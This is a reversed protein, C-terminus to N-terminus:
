GSSLYQRAIEKAYEALIAKLETPYLVEVDTGYSLLWKGFIPLSDVWLKIEVRSGLEEEEWFGLACKKKLVEFNDDKKLRVAVKLLEKAEYMKHFIAEITPHSKQFDQDTPSLAEIRDVRFDRYENRLHCFAILHWQDEFFGLLVPEINRQTTQNTTPSQYRIKIIKKSFLATQIGKITNSELPTNQNIGFVGIKNEIESTFSKEQSNLVARIKHFASEFSEQTHVDAFARTFKGALLLASTEDSTFAMPPLHYGEVLFYGEGPESGVPIGATELSRIDRYITRISVHFREALEKATVM